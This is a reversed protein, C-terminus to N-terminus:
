VSNYADERCKDIHADIESAPIGTYDAVFKTAGDDLYGIKFQYESLPKVIKNINGVGTTLPLAAAAATSDTAM